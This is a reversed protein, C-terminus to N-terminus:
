GAWSREPGSDIHVFGAYTGIGGPLIKRALAALEAPSMGPLAFDIAMAKIHYSNRAARAGRSRLLDNTKRTRYGSTIQVDGQWGQRMAEAVLTALGGSIGPDIPKISNERWDRLFHNFASPRVPVFTGDRERFRITLREDTNISHLMMTLGQGGLTPRSTQAPRQLASNSGDLDIFPKGAGEFLPKAESSFVFAHAAGPCLAAIGSRLVDRRSPRAPM